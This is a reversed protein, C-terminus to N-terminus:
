LLSFVLVLTVVSAYGAILYIALANLIGQVQRYDESEANLKRVLQTRTKWLSIPSGWVFTPFQM